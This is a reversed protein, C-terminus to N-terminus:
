ARQNGAHAVVGNGGGIGFLRQLQHAHAAAAHNERVHVHGAHIAVLKEIARQAAIWAHMDNHHGRFIRQFGREFGNAAAGRIKQGLGHVADAQLARKILGGREVILAATYFRQFLLQQAVQFKVANDAFAGGHQLNKVERAFHGAM